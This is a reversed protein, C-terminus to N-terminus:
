ARKIQALKSHPDSKAIELQHQQNTDNWKQFGKVQVNQLFMKAPNVKDQIQTPNNDM